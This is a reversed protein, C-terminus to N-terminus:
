SLKKLTKRPRIAAIAVHSDTIRYYVTNKEVILERIESIDLSVKGRRPFDSLESIKEFIEKTIIEAKEVSFNIAVHDWILELDNKAHNSWIIKKKDM